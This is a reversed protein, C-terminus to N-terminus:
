RLYFMINAYWTSALYRQKEPLLIFDHVAFSPGTLIWIFTQNRNICEWFHFQAGENSGFHFQLARDGLKWWEHIQSRNIRTYEWPPTPQGIKSCGFLCVLGPFIYVAWIYKSLFQYRSLAAENRPLCFVSKRHSQSEGIVNACALPYFLLFYFDFSWQSLAMCFLICM